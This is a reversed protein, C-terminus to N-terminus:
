RSVVVQSGRICYRPGCLGAWAAGPWSQSAVHMQPFRSSPGPLGAPVLWDLGRGSPLAVGSGAKVSPLAVQDWVDKPFIHRERQTITSELGRTVGAAAGAQYVSSVCFGARSPSPLLALPTQGVLVSHSPCATCAALLRCWM